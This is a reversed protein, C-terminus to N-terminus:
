ATILVGSWELVAVFYSCYLPLKPIHLNQGTDESYFAARSLSSLAFESTILRSCNQQRPIDADNDLAIRGRKREEEEKEEEEQEAIM